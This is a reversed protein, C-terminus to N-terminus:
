GLAKTFHSPNETGMLLEGARQQRPLFGQPKKGAGAKAIKASRQAQIQHAKNEIEKKARNAKHYETIKGERTVVGQYQEELGNLQNTVVMEDRIVGVIPTPRSLTALDQWFKKKTENRKAEKEKQEKEEKTLPKRNEPGFGLFDEFFLSFLTKFIYVTERFAGKTVDQTPSVIKKAQELAGKVPSVTAEKEENSTKLMFDLNPGELNEVPKTLYEQSEYDLDETLTELVKLSTEKVYWEPPQQFTLYDKGNTGFALSNTNKSGNLSESPASNYNLNPLSQNEGAYSFDSAVPSIFGNAFNSGAFNPNAQSQNFEDTGVEFPNVYKNGTNTGFNNM